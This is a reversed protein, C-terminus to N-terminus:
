EIKYKKFSKLITQEIFYEINGKGKEKVLKDYLYEPLVIVNKKNALEFAEELIEIMLCGKEAAKQRVAKHFEPTGKLSLSKTRGTMRKDTPALEPAHLNDSAEIPISGLSELHKSRKIKNWKNMYM